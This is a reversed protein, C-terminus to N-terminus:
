FYEMAQDSYSLVFIVAINYFRYQSIRNFEAFSLRVANGEIPNGTFLTCVKFNALM